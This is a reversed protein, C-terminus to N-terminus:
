FKHLQDKPPQSGIPGLSEPNLNNAGFSSLMKTRVAESRTLANKLKKLERQSDLYQRKLEKFQRRLSLNEQEVEKIERQVSAIAAKTQAKTRVRQSPLQFQAETVQPQQFALKPEELELEPPAEIIEDPVPQFYGETASRMMKLNQEKSNNLANKSNDPSNKVRQMLRAATPSLEPSRITSNIKEMLEQVEYKIEDIEQALIRPELDNQQFKSNLLDSKSSQRSQHKPPSGPYLTENKSPSNKFSLHIESKEHNDKDHNVVDVPSDQYSRKLTIKTPTSSASPPKWEPWIRQCQQDIEQISHRSEEQNFEEEAKSLIEDIAQKEKATLVKASM